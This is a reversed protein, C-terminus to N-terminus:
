PTGAQPRGTYFQNLQCSYNNRDRIAELCSVMDEYECWRYPRASPPVSEYDAACYQRLGTASPEVGEPVCRMLYKMGSLHTSAEGLTRAAADQCAQETDYKTAERSWKTLVWVTVPDYGMGRAEFRSWLVWSNAASTTAASLLLSLAVTTTM